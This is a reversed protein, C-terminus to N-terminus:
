GHQATLTATNRITRHEIIGVVNKSWGGGSYWGGGSSLVGGIYWGGGSSLVAFYYLGTSLLAAVLTVPLAVLGLLARALGLGLLTGLPTM